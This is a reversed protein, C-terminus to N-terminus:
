NLGKFHKSVNSRSDKMMQNKVQEVHPKWFLNERQLEKFVQIKGEDVLAKLRARSIFLMDQVDQSGLIANQIESLMM